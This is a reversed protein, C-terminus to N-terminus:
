NSGEIIEGLDSPTGFRNVYTFAWIAGAVVAAPDLGEALLEHILTHPMNRAFWLAIADGAYDFDNQLFDILRNSPTPNNLADRIMDDISM